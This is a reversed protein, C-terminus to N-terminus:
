SKHLHSRVPMSHFNSRVCPFGCMVEKQHLTNKKEALWEIQPDSTALGSIALESDQFPTAHALQETSADGVTPALLAVWFLTLRFPPSRKIYKRYYRDSHPM